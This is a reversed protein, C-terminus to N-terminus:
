PRAPASEQMSRRVKRRYLLVLTAFLAFPIWIILGTVGLVIEEAEFMAAILLMLVVVLLVLVLQELEMRMRGREDKLLWRLSSNLLLVSEGTALAYAPLEIWSHPLFFLTLVVLPPPFNQSLAIAQTLRATEYVSIGFFLPGVGPVLEILGVRANNTFIVAILGIFSRDLLRGLQQAQQGYSDQEGSFFPVSTLVFFLLVEGLFLSLIVSLRRGFFREWVGSFAAKGGDKPDDAEM